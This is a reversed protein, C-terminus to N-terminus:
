PLAPALAGIRRLIQPRALRVPTQEKCGTKHRDLRQCIRIAFYTKNM